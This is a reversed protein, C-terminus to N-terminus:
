ALRAIETKAKDYIVWASDVAKGKKMTGELAISYGLELCKDWLADVCKTKPLILGIQVALNLAEAETM